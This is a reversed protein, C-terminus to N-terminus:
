QPYERLPAFQTFVTESIEYTGVRAVDLVEPSIDIGEVSIHSAGFRHNVAAISHAEQGTSCPASLIVPERVRRVLDPLVREAYPKFTHENHRFFCTLNTIPKGGRGITPKTSNM